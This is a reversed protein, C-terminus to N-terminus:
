PCDPVFVLCAFVARMMFICSLSGTWSYGFPGGQSPLSNWLDTLSYTFSDKKFKLNFNPLELNLGEGRLRYPTHRECSFYSHLTGKDAVFELASSLLITM